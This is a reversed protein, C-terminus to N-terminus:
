DDEDLSGTYHHPLKHTERSASGPNPSSSPPPTSIVIQCPRRSLLTEVLRGPNPGQGDPPLELFMVDAKLHQAAEILTPGYDRGRRIFRSVSFDEKRFLEEAKELLEEAVQEQEGLPATLALARPVELIYVMYLNAGRESALRCAQHIANEPPAMGLIPVMIVPASKEVPSKDWIGLKLSSRAEEMSRALALSSRVGSVKQVTELVKPPMHVLIIRAKVKETHHIADGFTWAGEPTCDTIGSCDVIIGEPHTKLLLNCAAKITLWHNHKLSGSLSIVDGKAEVIM